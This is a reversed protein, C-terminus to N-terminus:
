HSPECGTVVPVHHEENERRAIVRCPEEISKKAAGSLRLHRIHYERDGDRSVGGMREIQETPAAKRRGGEFLAQVAKGSGIQRSTEEGM